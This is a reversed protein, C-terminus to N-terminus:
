QSRAPGSTLRETGHPTMIQLHPSSRREHQRRHQDEAPQDESSEDVRRPVEAQDREPDAKDDPRQQNAM